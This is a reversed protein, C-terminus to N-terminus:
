LHFATENELGSFKAERYLELNQKGLREKKLEDKEQQIMHPAALLFWHVMPWLVVKSKAGLKNLYM